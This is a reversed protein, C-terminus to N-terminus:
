KSPLRRLARQAEQTLRAEAFGTALSELVKRAGASGISELVEVARTARLRDGTLDLRYLDDLLRQLRRGQELSNPNKLAQRLFPLAAEGATALKETARTRTAFVPSDLDDILAVVLKADAAPAPPLHKALFAVSGAPDAVLEWMARDAHAAEASLADWLARQKELAHQTGRWVGDPARGTLDWLLIQTDAGGSVLIRRDHLFHLCSIEGPLHGKLTLRKQGAAIEWVEIVGEMTANVLLRSDASFHLTGWRLKMRTFPKGTAVDWLGSAYQREGFNDTDPLAYSLALCRGDPSAHIAHVRESWKPDIPKGNGDFLKAKALRNRLGVLDSSSWSDRTKSPFFKAAAAHEEGTRTDLYFPGDGRKDSILRQAVWQMYRGDDSLEVNWVAADPDFTRRLKSTTLDYIRIYYDKSVLAATKGDRAISLPDAPPGVFGHKGELKMLERGSVIDRLRLVGSPEHVTMMFDFANRQHLATECTPLDDPYRRVLKGTFHNWVLLRNHDRSSLHEGDSLARIDWVSGAHADLPRIAKGTEIDRWEPVGGAELVVLAKGDPTFCPPSFSNTPLGLRRPSGGAVEAVWPYAIGHSNDYGSWAIRKGDVSFVARSDARQKWHRAEKGSALDFLRVGDGNTIALTKGDPTVSTGRGETCAFAALRKRKTLDFLVIQHTSTFKADVKTDRFVIKTGCPLVEAWTINADLLHEGLLKGSTSDLVRCRGKAQYSITILRLSDASFGAQNGEFTYRQKRQELDWVPNDEGGRPCTVCKGDPSFQLSSGSSGAGLDFVRRGTEPDYFAVGVRPLGTSCVFYKGDPTYAIPAHCARLKLTGLRAIAGDPLPNGDHDLRVVAPKGTPQPEKAQLSLRTGGDGRLCDTKM